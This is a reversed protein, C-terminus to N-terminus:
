DSHARQVGSQRRGHSEPKQRNTLSSTKMLQSLFFFDGTRKIGVAVLQQGM